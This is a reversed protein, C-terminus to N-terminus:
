LADVSVKVAVANEPGRVPLTVPFTLPVAAVTVPAAWVAIVLKPVRVPKATEPVVVSVEVEALAKATPALPVVLGAKLISAEVAEEAVPILMLDAAAVPPTAMETKDLPRLSFRVKSALPDPVTLIPAVEVPETSKAPPEPEVPQVMVVAPASVQSPANAPELKEPEEDPVLVPSWVVTVPLAPVTVKASAAESVVVKTARPM